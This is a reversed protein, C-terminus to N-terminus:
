NKCLNPYVTRKVFQNLTDEFPHKLKVLMELKQNFNRSPWRLKGIGGINPIEQDSVFFRLTSDHQTSYPIGYMDGFFPKGAKVCQTELAIAPLIRDPIPEHVTVEAELSTLAQHVLTLLRLELGLIYSVKQDTRAKCIIDENLVCVELIQRAITTDSAMWLILSDKFLGMKQRFVEQEKKEELLNKYAFADQNLPNIKHASLINVFSYVTTETLANIQRAKEQVSKTKTCPYEISKKEIRAELNINSKQLMTRCKVMDQHLLGAYKLWAEQEYHRYAIFGSLGLITLLYLSLTTRSIM